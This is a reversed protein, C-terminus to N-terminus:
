PLEAPASSQKGFHALVQPNRRDSRALRGTARAVDRVQRPNVMALPLGPAVLAGAVPMQLGGTAELVVLEPHLPVLRQVTGTIGSADNAASWTDGTPSVAIDLRDKSVDIGIYYPGESELSLRGEPGEKCSAPQDPGPLQEPEKYLPAPLGLKKV